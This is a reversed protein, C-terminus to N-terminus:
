ITVYNYNYSNRCLVVGLGVAGLLKCPLFFIVWRTM